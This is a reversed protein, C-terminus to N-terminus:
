SADGKEVIAASAGAEAKAELFRWDTLLEAVSNWYPSRPDGGGGTKASELLQYPLEVMKRLNVPRPQPPTLKRCASDPIGSELFSEHAQFYAAMSMHRALRTESASLFLSGAVKNFRHHRFAMLTTGDARRAALYPEIDHYLRSWIVVPLQRVPKGEREPLAHRASDLVANWCDDDRALLDLLEDEALGHCSCCLYSISREVIMPDHHLREALKRFMRCILGEIDPCPPPPDEFSSWLKAEEFALRLYLPLTSHSMASEIARIQETQTLRRNSGHLWKAFLERADDACM